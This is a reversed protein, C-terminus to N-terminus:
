VYNATAPGISVSSRIVEVIQDFYNPKVIYDFAGLRFARKIEKPDKSMSYIVVPIHNLGKKHKLWLLLTSGHLKPINLDLFIVDPRNVRSHELLLIAEEGDAATNCTICNGIKQVAKIFIDRDDPDDEILLITKKKKSM